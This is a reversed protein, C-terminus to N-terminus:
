VAFLTYLYQQALMGDMEELVHVIHCVKDHNIIDELKIDCVDGLKNIIHSCRITYLFLSLVTVNNHLTTCRELIELNGHFIFYMIDNRIVSVSM